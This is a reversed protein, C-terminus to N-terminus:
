WVDGFMAMFWLCMVMQVRMVLCRMGGGGVAVASVLLGCWRGGTGGLCGNVLAEGDGM